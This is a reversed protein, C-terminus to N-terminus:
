TWTVWDRRTKSWHVKNELFSAGRLTWNLDFILCRAYTEYCWSKCHRRSKEVRNMHVADSNTALGFFRHYHGWFPLFFFSFGKALLIKSFLELVLWWTKPKALLTRLMQKAVLLNHHITTISSYHCLEVRIASFCWSPKEVLLWLLTPDMSCPSFVNLPCRKCIETWKPRINVTALMRKPWCWGGFIIKDCFM